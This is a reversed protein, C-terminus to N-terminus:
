MGDGYVDWVILHRKLYKILALGKASCNVKNCCLKMTDNKDIM